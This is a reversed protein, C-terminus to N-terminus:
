VGVANACRDCLMGGDSRSKVTGDRKWSRECRPENRLDQVKAEGAGGLSDLRVLSVGLLDALDTPDFRGLSREPDPLIVATDLPNDLDSSQRARELAALGLGRAKMVADWAADRAIGSEKAFTMLHVSREGDKGDIKHLARWAEDATHPVIPALLRCLGDAIDFLVTQTKRRRIGGPAECYLRDKVADLYVASLSENCFDFLRTTARRFDYEAYAGRVERSLADFEALAWADLDTAKFEAKSVCARGRGCEAGGSPAEFDDLNSLLFRLTNRVKRYQEGATKFFELDAKIDGDYALTAVWWRCVDAGFEKLLADVELTNGLSKSMKKGDKDVIFGHTLLTKYPPAGTAGLSTLLSVQFWGRHQDSGELYLDAPHHDKGFRERIVSNWSCGSEFWVDFIDMGKTLSRLDLGKPAQADAAYDYYKLIETPSGMFWADSGKERVLKAVARVSAATMLVRGDKAYFAPIPLGWARQRSICWDPRSELMGRMRNRGWEPVFGVGSETGRLAAERLTVGDAKRATDVGIFWQETARFIVPSKGRWDHPYSHTFMHHFFMHGSTELAAVVEKNADWISKGHLWAPVSTDYTGDERVPCYIPLREALGTRYDDAGHGPATHVLGTGDDLTVYEAAVITYVNKWSGDAHRTAEKPLASFDPMGGAVEAYLPHRYRLGVLRSGKTVALVRVDEAKGAKAVKEVLEKAIVTVNGDIRVLAYEADKHVAIAVNAPLTWPTTTWIMFCPRQNPRGGHGDVESEEEAENAEGRSPLDFADYVADQDEAEFDVYISPDERDYYELEADALATENAPSWHVSKLQRYVLGADILDAFVELTSGEYAPDMTLYPHVYDALTLLRKMQEMQVKIWKEAHARCERRVAMRRADAELGAIKALKGKEALDQMVKHEIPLGHCDWGPIYPCVKGEMLAIRVVMDKLSKNLLHGLHLLGNAYPPGDHFVFTAGGAVANASRQAQVREYLGAAEWRKLSSPENQVLNAKMAFSTRPLNLTGKYKSQKESAETTM